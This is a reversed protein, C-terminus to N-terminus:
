CCGGIFFSCISATGSTMSVYGGNAASFCLITGSNSSFDELRHILAAELDSESYEAVIMNIVREPYAAGGISPLCILVAAVLCLLTQM